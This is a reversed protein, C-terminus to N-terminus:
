GALWARTASPLAWQDTTPRRAALTRSRYSDTCAQAPLQDMRSVRLTINHGCRSRQRSVTNSPRLPLIHIDELWGTQRANRSPLKLDSYFPSPFCAPAFHGRSERTTHCPEGLFTGTPAACRPLSLGCTSPSVSGASLCKSGFPRGAKISTCCLATPRRHARRSAVADLAHPLTAAPDSSPQAPQLVVALNRTHSEYLVRIHPTPTRNTRLSSGLTPPARLPPQM